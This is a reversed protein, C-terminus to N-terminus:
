NTEPTTHGFFDLELSFPVYQQGPELSSPFRTVEVRCEPAERALGQKLEQLAEEARTTAASIMGNVTALTRAGEAGRKRKSLDSSVQVQSIWVGQPCAAQLIRQSRALAYAPETLAALSAIWRQRDAIEAKLEDYRQRQRRVRAAKRGEVLARRELDSAQSSLDAFHLVLFILAAAGGMALFLTRSMLDRKKRVRAPVLDLHFASPNSQGAVLGLAVAFAGPDREFEAAEEGDLPTLDLGSEPQFREVPCDLNAALYDDLGRLNAGGGTLLVRGPKLDRIGTQTRAFALSSQVMSALQGVPGILANAVKEERGSAYSAMGKPTVNGYEHKIGEAQEFSVGFADAVAQTLLSGGASINRAFLIEGDQQLVMELNRDGVDVLFVYEGEHLAGSNLYANFLGVSAPTAVGPEGVAGALAQHRGELFREKVVAVMVSEDGEERGPVHLLNYDSALPEGAQDAMERLEFDMLLKLRWLPVPPVQTYRIILDRGSVSYRAGPQKGLAETLRPVAALPPDGDQTSPDVPISFVRHLEILPGKRRGCVVKIARSGLDIGCSLAM